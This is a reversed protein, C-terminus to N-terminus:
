QLGKLCRAEDTDKFELGANFRGRAFMELRNM